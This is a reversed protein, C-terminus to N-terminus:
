SVCLGDRIRDTQRDTRKLVDRGWRRDREKGTKEEAKKRDFKSEKSSSPIVM